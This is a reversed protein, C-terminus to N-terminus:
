KIILIHGRGGKEGPVYQVSFNEQLSNIRTFLNDESAINKSSWRSNRNSSPHSIRDGSLLKEIIRRQYCGKACKKIREEQNESLEVKM